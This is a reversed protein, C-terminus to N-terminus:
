SLASSKYLEAFYTNHEMLELFTGQGAIEGDRFVVIRDFGKISSLRHAIALVTKGSLLHVVENMVAEETLNDM